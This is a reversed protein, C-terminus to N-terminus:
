LNHLNNNCVCMCACVRVCVFVCVAVEILYKHDDNFWVMVHPCLGTTNAIHERWSGPIFSFYIVIHFARQSDYINWEPVMNKFNVYGTLEASRSKRVTTLLYTFM